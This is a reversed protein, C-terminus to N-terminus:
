SRRRRILGVMGFLGLGVLSVTAPEPVIVGDVISLTGFNGFGSGASPSNSFDVKFKFTGNANPQLTLRAALYGQRGENPQGLPPGWSADYTQASFVAAPGAPGGLELSPGLVLPAQDITPEGAAVFSDFALDPFTGIFAGNPPAGNPSQFAHEVVQGSSLQMLIQMSGILNGPAANVKIDFTKTGAQNGTGANPIQFISVPGAFSQSAIALM